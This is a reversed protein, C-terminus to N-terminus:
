HNTNYGEAHTAATQAGTFSSDLTAARLHSHMVLMVCWVYVNAVMLLSETCSVICVVVMYCQVFKMGEICHIGQTM